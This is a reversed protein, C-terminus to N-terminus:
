AVLLLRQAARGLAQQRREVVPVEERDQALLDLHLGLRDSALQDVDQPQHPDVDHRAPLPKLGALKKISTIAPGKDQALLGNLTTKPLGKLGKLSPTALWVLVKNDTPALADFAGAPMAKTKKRRAVREAVFLAKGNVAKGNAVELRPKASASLM